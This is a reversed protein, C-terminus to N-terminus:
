SRPRGSPARVVRLSEVRRSTAQREFAAAEEESFVRQDGLARPRQLPTATRFDWVGELDPRDDPSPLAFVPAALAGLVLASQVVLWPRILWEHAPRKRPTGQM